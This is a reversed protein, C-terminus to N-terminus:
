EIALYQWPKSCKLWVAFCYGCRNYGVARGWFGLCDQLTRYSAKVAVKSGSVINWDELERKRFAREAHFIFTSKASSIIRKPRCGAPWCLSFSTWYSMFLKLRAKELHQNRFKSRTNARSQAQSPNHDTTGIQTSCQPLYNAIELWNKGM